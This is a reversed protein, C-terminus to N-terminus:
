PACNVVGRQTHTHTNAHIQARRGLHHKHDICRDAVQVVEEGQLVKQEVEPPLMLSHSDVRLRKSYTNSWLGWFTMECTFSSHTLKKKEHKDAPPHIGERCAATCDPGPRCPAAAGLRAWCTCRRPLLWSGLSPRSRPPCPRSLRRLPARQATLDILTTAM